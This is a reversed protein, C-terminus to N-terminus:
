TDMKKYIRGDNDHKSSQIWPNMITQSLPRSTTGSSNSGSVQWGFNNQTPDYDYLKSAFYREGLKWDIHLLRCLFNSVVLRGRNHMYGTTNLETM